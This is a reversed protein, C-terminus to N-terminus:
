LRASPPDWRDALPSLSGGPAGRGLPGFPARLGRAGPVDPSYFPPVLMALVGRLLFLVAAPAPPACIGKSLTPPGRQPGYPCRETSGLALRTIAAALIYYM